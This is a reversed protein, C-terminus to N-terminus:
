RVEGCGIMREVEARARVKKRARGVARAIWYEGKRAGFVLGAEFKLPRMWRSRKRRSEFHELVQGMFLWAQQGLFVLQARSPSPLMAQQGFLAAQVPLRPSGPPAAAVPAGVAPLLVAAALPAAIV